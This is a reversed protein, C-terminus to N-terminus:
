LKVIGRNRNFEVDRYDLNYLTFGYKKPDLKYRKVLERLEYIFFQVLEYYITDVKQLLYDNLYFLVPFLALGFIVLPIELFFTLIGLGIILAIIGMISYKRWRLIKKALKVKEEWTELLTPNYFDFATHRKGKRIRERILLDWDDIYHVTMGKLKAREADVSSIIRVMDEASEHAIHEYVRKEDLELAVEVSDKVKIM